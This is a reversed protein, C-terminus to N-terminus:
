KKNENHTFVSQTALQPLVYFLISGTIIAIVGKIYLPNNNYIGLEDAFTLIAFMMGFCSFWIWILNVNVM